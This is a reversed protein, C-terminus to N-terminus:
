NIINLTNADEGILEGHVNIQVLSAILLQIHNRLIYIDHMTAITLPSFFVVEIFLPLTVM